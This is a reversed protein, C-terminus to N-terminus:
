GERGLGGWERGGKSAGERGVERGGDRGQERGEKRVGKRVGERKLITNTYPSMHTLLDADWQHNTM